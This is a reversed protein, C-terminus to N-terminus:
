ASQIEIIEKLKIGDNNLKKGFVRCENWHSITFHSKVLTYSSTDFNLMLYFMVNM